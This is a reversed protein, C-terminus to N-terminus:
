VRNRNIFKKVEAAIGFEVNKVVQGKTQSFAKRMYGRAPQFRSGFEVIHAYYGDVTGSTAGYTKFGSRRKALKPGVYVGTRDRRFTLVKISKKLNGPVYKAIKKGKGKPARINAALKGSSGYRFHPASSVPVNNRAAQVMPRAARRLVKRRTRVDVTLLLSNLKKVALRVERETENM